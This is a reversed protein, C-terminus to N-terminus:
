RKKLYKAYTCIPSYKLYRLDIIEYKDTISYTHVGIINGKSIKDVVIDDAEIKKIENGNKDRYSLSVGYDFESSNQTPLYSEGKYEFIRGANRDNLNFLDSKEIKELAFKGSDLMKLKYKVYRVFLENGDCIESALIVIDMNNKEIIVTDVLKEETRIVDVCKWKDPFAEAIYINISKNESTEPIMYVDGNWEFVMPFSMHYNEEIVTRFCINNDNLESFAIRGKQKKRDFKEVFLYDEGNKTFAIPDAYWYKDSYPIISFERNLSDLIIGDNRKRYAITYIEDFGLVKKVLRHLPIQKIRKKLDM